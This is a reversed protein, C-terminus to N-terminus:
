TAPAKQDPTRIPMVMAQYDSGFGHILLPRRDAVWHVILRQCGSCKAADVLWRINAAFTFSAGAVSHAHFSASCEGTDAAHSRAVILRDEPVATLTVIQNGFRAIPAVRALAGLLADADLAVTTAWEREHPVSSQWSPYGGQVLRSTLTTAATRMTLLDRDLSVQVDDDPRFVNASLRVAEAPILAEYGWVGGDIIRSRVSHLRFQDSAVFLLSGGRVGRVSVSGLIPKAPDTSTAPTVQAMAKTFAAMEIDGIVPPAPPDAPMRVADAVAAYVSARVPEESDDHEGGCLDLLPGASAITVPGPPMIKALDRLLAAGAYVTGDAAGPEVPRRETVRVATNDGTVSLLGASVTLRLHDPSVAAPAALAERLTDADVSFKM